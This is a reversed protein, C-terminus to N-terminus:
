FARWPFTHRPFLSHPMVAGPTNLRHNFGQIHPLVMGPQTIHPVSTNPRSPFLHGFQFPVHNPGVSIRPRPLPTNWGFLQYPHLNPRPAPLADFRQELAAAYVARDEIIRALRKEADARHGPTWALDIGDATTPDADCSLGLTDCMQALRHFAPDHLVSHSLGPLVPMPGHSIIAPELTPTGQIIITDAHAASTAVTLGIAMAIPFRFM